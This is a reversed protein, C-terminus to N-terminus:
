GHLNLFRNHHGGISNNIKVRIPRFTSESSLQQDLLSNQLSFPSQYETALIVASCVAKSYASLFPSFTTVSQGGKTKPGSDCGITFVLLLNRM